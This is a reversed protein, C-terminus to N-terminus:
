LCIYLNFTNNETEQKSIVFSKKIPNCDGEECINVKHAHDIGCYHPCINNDKKTVIVMERQGDQYTILYHKPSLTIDTVKMGLALIITFLINTM